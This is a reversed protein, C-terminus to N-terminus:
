GKRPTSILFLFLKVFLSFRIRVNATRAMKDIPIFTVPCPSSKSSRPHSKKPNPRTKMSTQATITSMIAIRMATQSYLSASCRPFLPPKHTSTRNTAVKKKLM